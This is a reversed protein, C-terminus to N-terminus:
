KIVSNPTHCRTFTNHFSIHGLNMSSNLGDKVYITIYSVYKKQCNLLFTKFTYHSCYHSIITETNKKSLIRHFQKNYARVQM